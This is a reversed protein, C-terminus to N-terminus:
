IALPRYVFNEDMYAVTHSLPGGLEIQLKKLDFM